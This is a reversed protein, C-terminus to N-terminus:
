AILALIIIIPLSILEVLLLRNYKTIFRQLLFDGILIFISFVFIYSAGLEARPDGPNAKYYIFIGLIFLFFCNGPTIRYKM